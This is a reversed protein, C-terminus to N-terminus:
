LGATEAYSTWRATLAAPTEATLWAARQRALKLARKQERLAAKRLTKLADKELAGQPLRDLAALVLGADRWDGLADSTREALKGHAQMPENCIRRLLLAHHWHDKACKRWDHLHDEEGTLVAVKYARRLRRYGRRIGPALASIGDERTQWKEARRASARMDRAFAKLLKGAADAPMAAGALTELAEQAPDAVDGPLKLRGLTEIVAGSDRAASLRRAADRLAANEARAEPIAPSVLRILSRLRKVSKRVEHVKRAVPLDDNALTEAMHSFQERAIRRAGDGVSEQGPRFRYNM